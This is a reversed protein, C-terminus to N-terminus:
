LPAAGIVAGGRAYHCPCEGGASLKPPSTDSVNNEGRIRLM